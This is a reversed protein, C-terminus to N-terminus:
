WQKVCRFVNYWCYINTILVGGTSFSRHFSIVMICQQSDLWYNEKKCLCGGERGGERGGRPLTVLHNNTQVTWDIDRFM